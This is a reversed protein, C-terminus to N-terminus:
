IRNRRPAPIKTSEVAQWAFLDPLRTHLPLTFVPFQDPYIPHSTGDEKPGNDHVEFGVGPENARWIM